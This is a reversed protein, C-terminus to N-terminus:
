GGAVQSQAIRDILPVTFPPRKATKRPAKAKAKTTGKVQSLTLVATVSRAQRLKKRGKRDSPFVKDYRREDADGRTEDQWDRGDAFKVFASCALLSWACARRMPCRDCPCPGIARIAEILANADIEASM